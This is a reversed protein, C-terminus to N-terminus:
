APEAFGRVAPDFIEDLTVRYKTLGQEHLYRFATDYTKASVEYGYPYFNRGMVAVTEDFEQGYWPLTDYAWGLLQMYKMDMAKAKSFAAFVAQPLWPNAEMVDRRVAISHMIPFIGTRELYNQEVSRHDVFLRRIAPNREMFAKPEAAHFVADVEGALLLDSEDMGAPADSIQVGEPPKVVEWSSAGGTLGISSEKSSVIWHFDEPSLGYEDKLVGRIWTLSSSSYGVIGIKKGKLAQPNEIGSDSRVWMSKHRFARLAPIPLLAYDRIGDNAWALLYPILGIETVHRTKPGGLAHINMPGIGTVEYTVECGEILAEGNAVAAVRNYDYGAVTIPLGEGFPGNVKKVTPDSHTTEGAMATTAVAGATAAAMGALGADRIFRRRDYKMLSDTRVRHLLMRATLFLGRRIAAAEESQANSVAPALGGVRTSM